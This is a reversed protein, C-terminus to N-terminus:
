KESAIRKPHGSTQKVRLRIRKLAAAVLNHRVAVRARDLVSLQEPTALSWKIAEFTSTGALSKEIIKRLSFTVSDMSYQAIAGGHGHGLTATRISTMSAEVWVRTSRAYCFGPVTQFEHPTNDRLVRQRYAVPLGTGLAELIV